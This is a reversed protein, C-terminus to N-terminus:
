VPLPLQKSAAGKLATLLATQEAPLTRPYGYRDVLTHLAAVNGRGSERLCLELLHDRAGGATLALEGRRYAKLIGVAWARFAAAKPQRSLMTIIMVGEENYVRTPRKQVSGSPTQADDDSDLSPPQRTVKPHDPGENQDYVGDWFGEASLKIVMSYRDLEEQHRSYVKRIATAPDPYELAEGVVAGPIWLDGGHEFIRVSLAGFRHMLATEDM